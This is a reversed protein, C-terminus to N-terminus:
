RYLSDVFGSRELEDLLSMDLLQESRATRAEPTTLALADLQGQLAEVTLRPVREWVNVYTEYVERLVAPDDAKTYKGIAAM